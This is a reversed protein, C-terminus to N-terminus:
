GQEVLYFTADLARAFAGDVSGNDGVVATATGAPIGLMEAFHTSPKGIVKATRELGVAEVLAGLGAVYGERRRVQRDSNTLWLDLEPQHQLGELVEGANAAHGLVVPIGPAAEVILYGARTLADRVDANVTPSAVGRGCHAHARLVEPLLDLTTACHSRHANIGHDRLFPVIEKTSYRDSNSVFYCRDSPLSRALEIISPIPEFDIHLTGDLDFVFAEHDASLHRM